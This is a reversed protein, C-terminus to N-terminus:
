FAPKQNASSMVNNQESRKVFTDKAPAQLHPDCKTQGVPAIPQPADLGFSPSAGMSGAGALAFTISSGGGVEAFSASTGATGDVGISGSGSGSTGWGFAGSGHGHCRFGGRLCRGLGCGRMRLPLLFFLLLLPPLPCPTLHGSFALIKM